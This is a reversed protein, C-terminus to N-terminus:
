DFFPDLAYAVSKTDSERANRPSAHYRGEHYVVTAVLLVVRACRHLVIIADLDRPRLVIAHCRPESDELMFVLKENALAQGVRGIVTTM